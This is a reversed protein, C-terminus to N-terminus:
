IKLEGQTANDKKGREKGIGKAEKKAFQLFDDRVMLWAVYPTGDPNPKEGPIVPEFYTYHNGNYNMGGNYRATTFPTNECRIAPLGEPKKAALFKTLLDQWHQLNLQEVYM